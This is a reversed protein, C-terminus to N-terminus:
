DKMEVTIVAKQIPEPANNPRTINQPLYQTYDSGQFEGEYRDGGAHKAMRALTLEITHKM